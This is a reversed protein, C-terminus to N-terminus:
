VPAATTRPLLTSTSSFPSSIKGAFSSTIRFARDVIL